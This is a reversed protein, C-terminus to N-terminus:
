SKKLAERAIYKATHDLLDQNAIEKLAERLRANESKLEHIHKEMSCEKCIFGVEPDCCKCQEM